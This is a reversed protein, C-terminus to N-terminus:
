EGSEEYTAETGDERRVIVTRAAPAPMELRAHLEIPALEPAAVHITPEVRVDAPHVHIM